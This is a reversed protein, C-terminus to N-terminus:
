EDLQTETEVNSSKSNVISLLSVGIASWNVGGLFMLFVMIPGEISDDLSMSVFPLLCFLLTSIMLLLASHALSSPVSPIRKLQLCLIISGILM